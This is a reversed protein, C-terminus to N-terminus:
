SRAVQCASRGPGVLPRAPATKVSHRSPACLGDSAPGTSQWGMTSPLARTAAVGSYQELQATLAALADALHQLFALVEAPSLLREMMVFRMLHLGLDRSVTAAEVPTRLWNM